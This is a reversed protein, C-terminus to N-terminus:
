ISFYSLNQALKNWQSLYQNIKGFIPQAEHQAIKEVFAGPRGSQQLVKKRDCAPNGSPM